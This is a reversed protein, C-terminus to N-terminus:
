RGARMSAVVFARQMKDVFREVPASTSVFSGVMSGLLVVGIDFNITCVLCGFALMLAYIFGIRVM